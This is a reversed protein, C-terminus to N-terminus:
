FFRVKSAFEAAPALIVALYFMGTSAQISRGGEKALRINFYAIVALIALVGFGIMLTMSGVGLLPSFSFSCSDLEGGTLGRCPIPNLSSLLVSGAGAAIAAVNAWGIWVM